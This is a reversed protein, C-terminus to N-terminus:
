KTQEYVEKYVDYTQKAMTQWSFKAAQKRGRRILETRLAKDNWIKIIAAKMEEVSEPDFTVAADGVVEPLSTTNSCAVPVGVSMAELPPIGFGEFRSPCVLMKAHQHTYALEDFSLPGLDIVQRDIGLEKIRAHIAAAKESRFGSLVLSGSFGDAVLQAFAELLRMHNKHNWDAAPYFLYEEPLGSVKKPHKSIDGGALYVTEVKNAPIDFKDFLSQAAHKSIAIIKDAREASPKFTSRRQVLEAASFNEPQFEHQMDMFSLIIPKKLAFDTAPITSLLYHVIDVDHKKLLINLQHLGPSYIRLHSITMAKNMLRLFLSPAELNAVKISPDIIGIDLGPQKILVIEGDAAYQPLYEVLKKAYTVVGEVRGPPLQLLNIAIRM